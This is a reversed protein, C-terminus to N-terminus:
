LLGFARAKGWFTLRSLRVQGVFPQTCASVSREVVFPSHFDIQLPVACSHVAIFAALRMGDTARIVGLSTRQGGDRPTADKFM